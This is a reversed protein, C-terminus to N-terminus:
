FLDLPSSSMHYVKVSFIQSSFLLSLRGMTSGSFLVFSVLGHGENQPCSHRNHGGLLAQSRQETMVSGLFGSKSIMDIM